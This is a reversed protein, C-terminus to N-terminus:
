STSCPGYDTHIESSNAFDFCGFVASIIVAVILCKGAVFVFLVM